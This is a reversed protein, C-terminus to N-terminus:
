ELSGNAYAAFEMHYLDLSKGLVGFDGKYYTPEKYGAKEAEERSRFVEKIEVTCFRPTYVKEGAKM